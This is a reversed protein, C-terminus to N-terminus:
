TIALYFSQLINTGEDDQDISGNTPTGSNTINYKGYHSTTQGAIESFTPGTATRPDVAGSACYHAIQLVVPPATLSNVTITQAGPNVTTGQGNVSGPTVGYITANPRFIMVIKNNNTNGAMGTVNTNVESGTLVKFSVKARSNTSTNDTVPTFESPVVATPIAASSRAYDLYICLDGAQATAPILISTGGSTGSTHFSLSTVPVRLQIPDIFFGM